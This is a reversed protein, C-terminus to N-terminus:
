KRICKSNSIENRCNEFSATIGVEVFATVFPKLEGMTLKARWEAPVGGNEVHVDFLHHMHDRFAAKLGNKFPKNVVTDCEQMIDTCGAPVFLAYINHQQMLNLVDKDKHTFHLDV